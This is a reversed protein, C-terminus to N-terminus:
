LEMRARERLSDLIRFTTRTTSALEDLNIPAEGSLVAACVAKVQDKQGKDQAKSNVQKERGDRYMTASLYDDLVFSRGGGFVEVREKALARDGEALYAITGNSGDEFKLTIFVSDANVIKDSKANIAEAFVSIPKAATLFTLFDIFHCVEGIIRGGQQQDQIWHEKPLRGANVRYAISLPESRGNFFERAQLALPSFRRNFGVMLLGSSASAANLVRGLEEDNLALPKEVFVHKNTLLANTAVEAHLDHRTGV